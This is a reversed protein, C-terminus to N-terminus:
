SGYTKGRELSECMRIYYGVDFMLSDHLANWACENDEDAGSLMRDMALLTDIKARLTVSAYDRKYQEMSDEYFAGMRYSKIQIDKLEEMTYQSM